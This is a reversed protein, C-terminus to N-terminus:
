SQSRSIPEDGWRKAKLKMMLEDKSVQGPLCNQYFKKGNCSYKKFTYANSKSSFTMDPGKSSCALTHIIFELSAMQM